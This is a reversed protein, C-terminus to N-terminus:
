YNQAIEVIKQFEGADLSAAGVLVGDIEEKALFGRVDSANVSGGYLVRIDKTRHGIDKFVDKIHTIMEAADEPTDSVGHSRTSIAWVPEYAVILRPENDSIGQAGRTQFSKPTQVVQRLAVDDLARELQKKVFVKAERLHVGTDTDNDSDDTMMRTDNDDDYTMTRREREGVCLIVTLGEKLAALVKKNVIEDTEGMARRESHGVLVYKVGLSQLEIPSVEGTYAGEEEYFVDQAGLEANELVEGVPALFSLPPILVVGELDEERALEVAEGETEPNMKWNAVVLKMRHIMDFFSKRTM